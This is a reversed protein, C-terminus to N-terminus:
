LPLKVAACRTRIGTNDPVATMVTFFSINGSLSDQGNTTRAYVEIPLTHLDIARINIGIDNEKMLFVKCKTGINNKHAVIQAPSFNIFLCPYNPFETQEDRKEGFIIIADPDEKYINQALTNSEM